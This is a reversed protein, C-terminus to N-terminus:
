SWDSNSGLTDKWDRPERSVRLWAHIRHDMSLTIYKVYKILVETGNKQMGKFGKEWRTNMMM